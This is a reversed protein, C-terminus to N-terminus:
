ECRRHIITSNMSEELDRPAMAVRNEPVIMLTRVLVFHSFVCVWIPFAYSSWFARRQRLAVIVAFPYGVFDSCLKTSLVHSSHVENLNFNTKCVHRLWTRLGGSASRGHEVSAESSRRGQGTWVHGATAVHHRRPHGGQDRCRSSLRKGCAPYDCDTTTGRRTSVVICSLPHTSNEGCWTQFVVGQMSLQGDGARGQGGTVFGNHSEEVWREVLM